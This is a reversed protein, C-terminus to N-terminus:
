SESSTLAVPRGLSQQKCASGGLCPPSHPHNYAGHVGWTGTSGYLRVAVVRIVYPRCPARSITTQVCLRRPVSTHSPSDFASHAGIDGYLRLTTAGSRSPHRLPSLAGSLNNNARLAASARLHTIPSDFAGHAGIDGYLQLVAVAM